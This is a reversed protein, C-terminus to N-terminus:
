EGKSKKLLKHVNEMKEELDAIRKDKESELKEIHKLNDENQIKLKEVEDFVLEPIVKKYHEFMDERTTKFYHKELYNSHDMLKEAVAYPMSADSKLITNFRKRFSGCSALDYNKEGDKVRIIGAKAMLDSIIGSITTSHIPKIPLSVLVRHAIFVPSEFTLKEGKSERWAHYKKLADSSIKHLFVYHEHTTGAYIKMSLCGDGISEVHKIKLEAIGEPRCGTASLVQILAVQKVGDSVRILENIEQNTIPRGGSRKKKEGYLSRIKRKNIEKDNMELYKFIGAMYVPLSNPSVRKKLFLTYDIILDTLETKELFLISEYDKKSWTLFKDLEFLYSHRTSKSKCSELFLNLCRPTEM